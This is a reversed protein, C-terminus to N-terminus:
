SGVLPQNKDKFFPETSPAMCDSFQRRRWSQPSVENAERGQPIVTGDQRQDLTQFYNNWMKSGTKGNNISLYNLGM